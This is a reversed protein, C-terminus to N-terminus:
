SLFTTIDTGGPVMAVDRDVLTSIGPVGALVAHQWVHWDPWGGPVIPGNPRTAYPQQGFVKPGAERGYSAIWLKFGQAFAASKGMSSAWFSPYTYIIPQRGIAQAFIGLFFQLSAVRQAPTLAGGASTKGNLEVDIMPMLEGTDGTAQLVQAFHEAQRRSGEANETPHFVHYAGRPLLGRSATWYTNFTSDTGFDGDTAKIYAFQVGGNAVNPWNITGQASSVDIGDFVEFDVVSSPTVTMTSTQGTASSFFISGNEFDSVKGASQGGVVDDKEDSVPYGLAGLPGGQAIYDALIAGHVECTADLDARDYLTVAVGTATMWSFFTGRGDALPIDMPTVPLPPSWGQAILQNYRDTLRSM